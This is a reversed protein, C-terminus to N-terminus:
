KFDGPYTNKLSELLKANDRRKQDVRERSIAVQSRAIALEANIEAQEILHNANGSSGFKSSGADSRAESLRESAHTLETPAYEEAGIKEAQEIVAEATEFARPQPAPTACATMLSASALLLAVFFLRNNM